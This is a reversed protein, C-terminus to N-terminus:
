DMPINSHNHRVEKMKLNNDDHYKSNLEVM